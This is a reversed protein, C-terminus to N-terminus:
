IHGIQLFAAQQECNAVSPLLLLLCLSPQVGHTSQSQIAQSGQQVLMSPHLWTCPMPVALQVAALNHELPPWGRMHMTIHWNMHRDKNMHWNMRRDVVNMQTNKHMNIHTRM